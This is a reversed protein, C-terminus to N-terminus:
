NHNAHLGRNNLEKRTLWFRGGGQSEILFIPGNGTEFEVDVIKGKRIMGDKEYEISQNVFQMSKGSGRGPLIFLM